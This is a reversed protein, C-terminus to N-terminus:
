QGAKRSTAIDSIKDLAETLEKVRTELGVVKKVKDEQGSLEKVKAELGLAMTAMEITKAQEQKIEERLQEITKVQELLKTKAEELQANKKAFELTKEQAESLNSPSTASKAKDSYSRTKVTKEM